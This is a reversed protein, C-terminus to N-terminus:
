LEENFKVAQHTIEQRSSEDADNVLWTTRVKIRMMADKATEDEETEIDYEFNRFNTTLEKLLDGGGTGPDTQVKSLTQADDPNLFLNRDDPVGVPVIKDALPEPGDILMRKVRAYPLAMLKDLISSAIHSAAQHKSILNSSVASRVSFMYLPFLCVSLVITAILVEILHFAAKRRM